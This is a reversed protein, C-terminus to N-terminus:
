YKCTSSMGATKSFASLVTPYNIKVNKSIKKPKSSIMPFRRSKRTRKSIENEKDSLANENKDIENNLDDLKAMLNEQEALNDSQESKADNIEGELESQKSNNEQQKKQLEDIESQVDSSSKASTQIPTHLITGAALAAVLVPKIMKKMEERM